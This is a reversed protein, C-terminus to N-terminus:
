LNKEDHWPLSKQSKFFIAIKSDVELNKEDQWPLSKLSKLFTAIKEVELLIISGTAGNKSESM